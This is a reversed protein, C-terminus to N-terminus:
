NEPFFLARGVPTARMPALILSVVRARRSHFVSSPSQVATRNSTRRGTLTSEAVSRRCEGDLRVLKARTYAALPFVDIRRREQTSEPHRALPTRRDSQAAPAALATQASRASRARRADFALEVGARAGRM